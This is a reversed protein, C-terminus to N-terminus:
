ILEGKLYLINVAHYSINIKRFSYLVQLLMRKYIDFELDTTSGNEIMM